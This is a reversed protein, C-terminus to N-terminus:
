ILSSTQVHSFICPDMTHAMRLVYDAESAKKWNYVLNKTKKKFSWIRINSGTKLPLRCCVRTSMNLSSSNNPKRKKAMCRLQESLQKQWSTYADHLNPNGTITETQKLYRKSMLRRKVSWTRIAQVRGSRLVHGPCTRLAPKKFVSRAHLAMSDEKCCIATKLIWM